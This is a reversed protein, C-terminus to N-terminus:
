CECHLRFRIEELYHILLFQKHQFLFLALCDYKVRPSVSVNITRFFAFLQKIGGKRMELPIRTKQLNKYHLLRQKLLVNTPIHHPM